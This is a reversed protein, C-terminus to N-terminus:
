KYWGKFFVRPSIGQAVLLDIWDVLLDSPITDGPELGQQRLGIWADQYARAERGEGRWHKGISTRRDPYDRRRSAQKRAQALQYPSDYGLMQAKAKRKAYEAKYDRKKAM